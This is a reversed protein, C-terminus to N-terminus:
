IQKLGALMDIFVAIVMYNVFVTLFSASVCLYIIHSKNENKKLKNTERTGRIVEQFLIMQQRLEIPNMVDIKRIIEAFSKADPTGIAEAFYDCAKDKQGMSWYSQMQNFVPRTKKTFKNLQELISLTGPPRNAKTIAL